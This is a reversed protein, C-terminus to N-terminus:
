PSAGSSYMHSKARLFMDGDLTDLILWDTENTSDKVLMVGRKISRLLIFEARSRPLKRVRWFKFDLDKQSRTRVGEYPIILGIPYVSGSIDCSFM